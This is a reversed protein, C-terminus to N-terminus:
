VGTLIDYLTQEEESITVAVIEDDAELVTAPSPLSADNGKVVLAIFSRPPLDVEELRKGVVGSDEPVSISILEMNPPQLNKLHVLPRGPVGEELSTVVQHTSNVVLDVGMLHFLPENKTDKIVAMTQPVNFRHKAIQCAVLNVDDRGTVAILLDSRGLGASKMTPEHTGDGQVVMTGLEDWLMQCRSHSKEIVTIEHGAALLVKAVHYGIENCGVIVAYM